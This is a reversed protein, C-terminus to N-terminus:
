FKINNFDNDFLDIFPVIPTVPSSETIILDNDTLEIVVITPYEFKEKKNNM